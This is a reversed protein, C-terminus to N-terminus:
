ERDGRSNGVSQDTLQKSDDLLYNLRKVTVFTYGKEKLAHIIDPLADVTTQLGNHLLLITGPVVRPIVWNALDAATTKEMDWGDVTWMCPTLGWDTAIRRVNFDIDGGPPRFYRINEGTTLKVAAVTEMLEREVQIAPLKTLNPHTYTHCEIEMGAKRIEDTLKPYAMVHRGIVFFTGPVREQELIALLQETIGPKPGDDFTLAVTKQGKEGRWFSDEADHKILMLYLSRLGQYDPSISAAVDLYKREADLDSNVKACISASYALTFRDPQMELLKWMGANIASLRESPSLVPAVLQSINRTTITKTAHSTVNGENDFITIDLQHTGNPAKATDWHFTFPPSNTLYKVSGDVKFVVYGTDSDTYDPSVTVVGSVVQSGPKIISPLPLPPLHPGSSLLVPTKRDFTMIVGVPEFLPNGQLNNFGDNLDTFASNYDGANYALMGNVYYTSARYTDPLPPLLERTDGEVWKLYGLSLLCAASDGEQQAKSLWRRAAQPHSKAIAAIGLGYEALGDRPYYKLAANWETSANVIDGEIIYSAGLLDHLLSNQPATNLAQYLIQRAHLIDGTELLPLAKEAAELVSESVVSPASARSAIPYAILFLAIPVIFCIVNANNHRKFKHMNDVICLKASAINWPIAKHIRLLM